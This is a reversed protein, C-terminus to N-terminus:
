HQCVSGCASVLAASQIQNVIIFNIGLELHQSVSGCASVLAASQIQNM